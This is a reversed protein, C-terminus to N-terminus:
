AVICNAVLRRERSAPLKVARNTLFRFRGCSSELFVLFVEWVGLEVVQWSFRSWLSGAEFGGLFGAEFGSFFAVRFSVLFGGGCRGFVEEM